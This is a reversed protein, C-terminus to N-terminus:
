LNSYKQLFFQSFLLLILMLAQTLSFTRMEAGFLECALKHKQEIDDINECGAYFRYKPYGEAYKDTLLTGQALQV